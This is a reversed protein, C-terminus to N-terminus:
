RLAARLATAASGEALSPGPRGDAPLIEPKLEPDGRPILSRALASVWTVTVFGGM